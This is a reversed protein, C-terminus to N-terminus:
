TGAYLDRERKDLFKRYPIDHANLLDVLESNLYVEYGYKTELSSYSLKLEAIVARLSENERQLRKYLEPQRHEVIIYSSKRSM